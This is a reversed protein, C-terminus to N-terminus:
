QSNLATTESFNAVSVHLSVAVRGAVVPAIPMSFTQRGAFVLELDGDKERM